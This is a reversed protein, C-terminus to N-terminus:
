EVLVVQGTAEVVPRPAVADSARREVAVVHQVGIRRRPERGLAAAPTLSRDQEDGFREPHAPVRGVVLTFCAVREGRAHELMPALPIRDPHVLFVQLRITDRHLLERLDFRRYRGFDVAGRLCGHLAALLHRRALTRELTYVRPMVGLGFSSVGRARQPPGRRRGEPAPCGAGGGGGGPLASVTRM